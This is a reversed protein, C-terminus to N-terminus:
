RKLAEVIANAKVDADYIQSYTTRGMFLHQMNSSRSNSVIFNGAGFFAAKTEGTLLNGFGFVAGYLWIFWMAPMIVLSLGIFALWGFVLFTLKANNTEPLIYDVRITEAIGSFFNFMYIAPDIVFMNMLMTFHEFFDVGPMFIMLVIWGILLTEGFFWIRFMLIMLEAYVNYIFFALKVILNFPNM